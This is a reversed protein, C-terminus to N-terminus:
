VIWDYVTVSDLAFGVFSVGTDRLELTNADVGAVSNVVLNVERFTNPAGMQLIEAATITEVLQGNWIVQLDGSTTWTDFQQVALLLSVEAKGGNADTVKHSIDIGGPTGQTDLWFGGDAGSVGNFGNGAVETLGGTSTWGTLSLDAVHWEATTPYAAFTESFIAPGESTVEPPKCWSDLNKWTCTGKDYALWKGSCYYYELSKSGKDDCQQGYSSYSGWDDDRDKGSSYSGSKSSQKSGSKSM